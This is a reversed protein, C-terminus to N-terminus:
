VKETIILSHNKLDIERKLIKTFYENIKPLSINGIELVNEKNLFIVGNKSSSKIFYNIYKKLHNINKELQLSDECNLIISYLYNFYETDFSKDNQKLSDNM